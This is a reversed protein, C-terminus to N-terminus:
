GESVVRPVALADGSSGYNAAKSLNLTGYDQGSGITKTIPTAM